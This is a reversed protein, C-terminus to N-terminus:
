GSWCICLIYIYIYVYIYIYLCYKMCRLYKEDYRFVPFVLMPIVGILCDLYYICGGLCCSGRVTIIVASLACCTISKIKDDVTVIM